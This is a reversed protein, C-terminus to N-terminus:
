KPMAELMRNIFSPAFIEIQDEPVAIRLARSAMRVGEGQRRGFLDILYGIAATTVTGAMEDLQLQALTEGVEGPATTQMLRYVDSADKDEVREPRKSALRDNIKHAKSVLLAAPGAVEVDLSRTDSAELAAITMTAHDVLAAELGVARRAARNGHPGLRAGRRGGPPAAGEPVIVDVPITLEEDDVTVTRLWIGPERLDPHFDAAEMAAALRPESGLLTPDVALDGDTTYPAIGVDFAGTNLYVAQAGAVIVAPGHPALVELADLLVRRAAIYRPDLSAM